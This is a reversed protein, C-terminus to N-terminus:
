SLNLNLFVIRTYRLLQKENKYIGPFAKWFYQRCTGRFVCRAAFSLFSNIDKHYRLRLLYRTPSKVVNRQHWLEGSCQQDSAVKYHTYQHQCCALACTCMYSLHRWRKRAAVYMIRHVVAQFSIPITWQTLICSLYYLTFGRRKACSLSPALVIGM